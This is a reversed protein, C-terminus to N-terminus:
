GFRQDPLLGLIAEAARDCAGPEGLAQRLRQYNQQLIQRREPDQLLALAEQVIAEPTAASQLLEPVLPEMTVLNVPSMFPISFHLLHRALWATFPHVRYIVVQPVQLLALELNVTGSKTIALDAAALVEQTQHSVLTARLGLRQITEALPQHFQSQSLPVWFHIRPFQHQLQCAAQAMVPWLSHLEQQRSAPLLAVAVQDPPIGLHKRAQQRSPAGTLWDLLPHGVWVVPAGQRQFFRAEEPFIALIRDSLDVLAQTLQHSMSWVWLQPAIYYVIPVQPWHRRLYRGFSLNPGMYDILVVLDPPCAWLRQKTRRQIQLTPWIYPLSELLGVSGIRSTDHILTAGAQAMRDGGLALIDLHLNRATAQRHLATILRSGQLDGSIEGTSIFLQISQGM